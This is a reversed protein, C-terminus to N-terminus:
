SKKRSYYSVLAMLKQLYNGGPKLEDARDLWKQAQADAMNERYWPQRNTESVFRGELTKTDRVHMMTSHHQKIHGLEHLITKLMQRDPLDPKIYVVASDPGDRFAVGRVDQLPPKEFKFECSRKTLRLGALHCALKRLEPQITKILEERDV